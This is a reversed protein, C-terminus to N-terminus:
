AKVASVAPHAGSSKGFFPLVKCGVVITEFKGARARVDTVLDLELPFENKPIAMFDSLCAPDCPLETVKFGVGNIQMKGNVIEVPVLCSVNCMDYPNGSAKATGAIRQVGAVLM